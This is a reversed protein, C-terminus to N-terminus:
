IQIQQIERYADMLKNRMQLMMRFSLDAKQVATLVEAQNVDDGTLMRHVLQDAHQQGANVEQVKGAVLDLFPNSVTGSAATGAPSRPSVPATPGQPLPPLSPFAPLSSLPHM